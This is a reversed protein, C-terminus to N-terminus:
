RLAIVALTTALLPDDEKMLDSHANRFEGRPLQLAALNTVIAPRCTGGADLAAAVEGRVSLHYFRLAAGWPEPHATPIGAPYTLDSHVRLWEAAAVVREDERSVGAALLALLGDCTATAYSRHYASHAESAPELRGKNAALVVPSFYFGGDFPVREATPQGPPLPHPRSEEPHRQALRLFCAARNLVQTDHGPPLDLFRASDVLAQLVRRTHALDMHGPEGPERRGGFGWGGYAPSQAEFGIEECFQQSILYERMKVILARDDGHGALVFCRLAYSTSYNPYELIDPDSLGLVGESNINARLFALGREVGGEPRPCTEVPVQLLAHLVFPTYAQGSRLLGYTTSHWGGDAAQQDWLWQAACALQSAGDEAASTAPAWLGFIAVLFTRRAWLGLRDQM